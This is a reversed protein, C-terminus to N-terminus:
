AARAPRHAAACSAVACASARRGGHSDGPPPNTFRGGADNECRLAARLVTATDHGPEAYVFVEPSTERRHRIHEAGLARYIRRAFIRCVRGIDQVGPEAEERAVGQAVLARVDRRVQEPHAALFRMAQARTFVGSHLCVLAIWDAKLGTWGFCALAKERGKLYVIM